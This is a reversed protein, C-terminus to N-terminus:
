GELGDVLRDFTAVHTEPVRMYVIDGALLSQSEGPVTAVGNRVVAVLSIEPTTIHRVQTGNGRQGIRLMVVRIEGHGLTLVDERTPHTLIDAIMRFGWAPPCVVYIGASSYPQMKGPDFVRAVVSPVRFRKRAIM